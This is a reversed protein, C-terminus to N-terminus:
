SRGSRLPRSIITTVWMPFHKEAPALLNGDLPVVPSVGQNKVVAAQAEPSLQLNIWEECLKKKLGKLAKTICWYDIWATGGEKSTAIM